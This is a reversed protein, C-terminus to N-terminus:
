VDSTIPDDRLEKALYIAGGALPLRGTSLGDLVDPYLRCEAAFVTQAITLAEAEVPLVVRIQAIIAGEDYRENVFHITAGSITEKATAVARHVHMGYMGKGAFRPLLAPHVNIMKNKYPELCPFPKLFGALAIWDISQRQLWNALDRSGDLSTAQNFDAVYLPLDHDRAFGAGGCDARSSIVAAIEYGHQEQQQWLNRLGRGEGSVAIAFRTKSM